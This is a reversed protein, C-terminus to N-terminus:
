KLLLQLLRAWETAAVARAALAETLDDFDRHVSEPLQAAKGELTATAEPSPCQWWEFLDLTVQVPLPLQSRDGLDALTARYAEEQGDLLLFELLNLKPFPSAPMRAVAARVAAEAGKRDGLRRLLLAYRKVAWTYSPHKKLFAEYEARAEEPRGVKELYWCYHSGTWLDEPGGVPNTLAVRYWTGAEDWQENRELTYAYYNAGRVRSPDADFARRLHTLAAAFDYSKGYCQGIGFHVDPDNQGAGSALLWSYLEIAAKYADAERLVEAAAKVDEPSAEKYAAAVGALDGATALEVLRTTM